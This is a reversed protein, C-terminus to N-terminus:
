MFIILCNFILVMQMMNIICLYIFFVYRVAESFFRGVKHLLDYIVFMYFCYTTKVIFPRKKQYFRILNQASYHRLNNMAVRLHKICGSVLLCVDLCMMANTLMVPVPNVAISEMIDKPVSQDVYVDLVPQLIFFVVLPVNLLKNKHFIYNRLYQSWFMETFSTLKSYIYSLLGQCIKVNAEDWHTGNLDNSCCKLLFRIAFLFFRTIVKKIHNIIDPFLIYVIFNYM